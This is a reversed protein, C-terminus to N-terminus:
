KVHQCTCHSGELGSGQIASVGCIHVCAGPVLPNEMSEWLVGEVGSILIGEYDPCDRRTRLHGSYLPESYKLLSKSLQPADCYLSNKPM